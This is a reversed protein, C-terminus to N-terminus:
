IKRKIEQFHKQIDEPEIKGKIYVSFQKKYKEPNEKKLM